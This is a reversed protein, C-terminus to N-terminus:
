AGGCHARVELKVADAELLGALAEAAGRRVAGPLGADQAARLLAAAAGLRALTHRTMVCDYVCQRLLYYAATQGSGPQSM